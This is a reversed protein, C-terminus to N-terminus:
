TNMIFILLIHKVILFHLYEKVCECLSKLNYIFSFLIEQEQYMIKYILMLKHNIEKHKFKLTKELCDRVM